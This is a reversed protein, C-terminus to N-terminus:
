GTLYYRHIFVVPVHSTRTDDGRTPEEVKIVDAGLDALLMTATPGALVRSLDVVKIGRLPPPIGEGNPRAAEFTQYSSNARRPLVAPPLLRSSSSWRAPRRAAIRFLSM